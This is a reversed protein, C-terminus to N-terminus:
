TKVIQDSKQEANSHFRELTIDTKWLVPLPENCVSTAEILIAPGTNVAKRIHKEREHESLLQRYFVYADRDGDISDYVWDTVKLFENLMGDTHRHFVPLSSLRKAAASSGWGAPRKKHVWFSIVDENRVDQVAFSLDPVLM